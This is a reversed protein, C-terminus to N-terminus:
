GVLARSREIVVYDTSENSLSIFHTGDVRAFFFIHSMGGKGGGGGVYICYRSRTALNELMGM